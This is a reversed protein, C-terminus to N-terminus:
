LDVSSGGHVTTDYTPKRERILCGIFSGSVGFRKGINENTVGQARLTLVKTIQQKVTDLCEKRAKM